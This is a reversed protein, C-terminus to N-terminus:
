SGLELTQKFLVGFQFSVPNEQDTRCAASTRHLRLRNDTRWQAKWQAPDQFATYGLGTDVWILCM